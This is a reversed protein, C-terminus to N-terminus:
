PYNPRSIDFNPNTVEAVHSNPMFRVQELRALSWTSRSPGQAEQKLFIM